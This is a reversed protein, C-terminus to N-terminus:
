DKDKDKGSHFNRMANRYDSDAMKGTEKKREPAKSTQGAGVRLDRLANRYSQDKEGSRPSITRHRGETPSVGQESVNETRTAEGIPAESIPAVEEVAHKESDMAERSVNSRRSAARVNFVILLVIVIFAAIGYGIILM